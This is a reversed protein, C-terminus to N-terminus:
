ADKLNKVPDLRSARLAPITNVIVMAGLFLAVATGFAGADIGSIGHYESQITRTAGLATGGGALLGIAAVRLSQRLVMTVITRPAAGLAMRVATEGDLSAAHQCRRATAPLSGASRM